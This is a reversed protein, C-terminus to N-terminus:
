GGGGLRGSAEASSAVRKAARQKAKTLRWRKRREVVIIKLRNDFHEKLPLGSDDVHDFVGFKM